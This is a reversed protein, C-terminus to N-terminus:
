TRVIDRLADGLARDMARDSQDFPATTGKHALHGPAKAEYFGFWKTPDDLSLRVHVVVKWVGHSIEVEKMSRAPLPQWAGTPERMAANAGSKQRQM